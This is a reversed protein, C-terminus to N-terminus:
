KQLAELVTDLVIHIAGRYDTLTLNENEEPDFLNTEGQGTFTFSSIIQPNPQDSSPLLCADVQGRLVDNEGMRATFEFRIKRGAFEVLLHNGEPSISASLGKVEWSDNDAQQQITSSFETFRKKLTLYRSSSKIAYHNVTGWNRM